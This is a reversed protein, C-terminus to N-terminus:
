SCASNFRTPLPIAGSCRSNTSYLCACRRNQHGHDHSSAGRARGLTRLGKECLQPLRCDPSHRWLVKRRRCRLGTEAFRKGSRSAWRGCQDMGLSIGRGRIAGCPRGQPYFEEEDEVFVLLLQGPLEGTVDKSDAFNFQALFHIPKGDHTTPWPKSSPWYPLGGIKTIEPKPPEGKGFVFVDTPIGGAYRLGFHDRLTEVSYLDFPSSIDEWTLEEPRKIPQFVKRVEQYDLVEHTKGSFPRAIM